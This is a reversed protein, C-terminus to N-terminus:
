PNRSKILADFADEIEKAKQQPTLAPNTGAEELTKQAKEEKENIAKNELAVKEKKSFFSKLKGLFFELLWFLLTKM